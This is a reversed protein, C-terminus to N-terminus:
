IKKATVALMLGASGMFTQRYLGLTKMSTVRKILGANRATAFTELIRQNEPTLLSRIPYLADIHMDSWRRLRGKMLQNVRFVRSRWDQNSGVLNRGHQRYRVSPYTDYRISGGVGAVLIYLWWDHSPINVTGVRCLLARAANNFVMTNGGALSQVLANRFSPAKRFLPSYGISQGFEDILRTRSCYVAPTNEPVTALWRIARELKDAEWVDDQDCYAYYDANAREDCTLTLFNEVFGKQPGEFMHVQGPPRSLAFNVIREKTRDVSGDDSVYLKWDGHRQDAISQLQEEIFHEGHASCMLIAVSEGGSDM